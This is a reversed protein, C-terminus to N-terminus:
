RLNERGKDGHGGTEMAGQTVDSACSSKPAPEAVSVSGPSLELAPTVPIDSAAARLGQTSTFYTSNFTLLFAGLVTNQFSKGLDGKSNLTFAFSLM